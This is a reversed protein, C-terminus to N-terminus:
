FGAHLAVGGKWAPSLVFSFILRLSRVVAGGFAGTIFSLGGLAEGLPPKNINKKRKLFVLMSREIAERLRQRRRLVWIEESFASAVVSLAMLFVRRPDSRVAARSLASDVVSLGSLAQM